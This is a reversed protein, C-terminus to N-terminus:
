FINETMSIILLSKNDFMTNLMFVTLQRMTLSLFNDDARPNHSKNQAILIKM